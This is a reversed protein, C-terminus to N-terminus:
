DKPTPSVRYISADDAKTSGRTPSRRARQMLHRKYSMTIVDTLKFVVGSLNAIILSINKSIIIKEKKQAFVSLYRNQFRM